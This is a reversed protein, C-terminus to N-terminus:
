IEFSRIRVAPNSQYICKSLQYAAECKDDSTIADKCSKVSDETPQRRAEPMKKIEGLAYDYNIKGDKM